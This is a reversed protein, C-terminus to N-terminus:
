YKDVKLVQYLYRESVPKLKKILEKMMYFMVITNFPILGLRVYLTAMASEFSYYYYIAFTNGLSALSYTVFLTVALKGLNDQDKRMILGPVLGWFVPAIVFLPLYGYGSLMVGVADGIVSMIVGYIPGLIISGFVIPGAYFPVGFNTLGLAYKFFVDIAISIATLTAALTLRKLARQTKM